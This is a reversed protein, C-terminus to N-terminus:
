EKSPSRSPTTDTDPASNGYLKRWGKGSRTQLRHFKGRARLTKVKNDCRSSIAVRRHDAPCRVIVWLPWKSSDRERAAVRRDCERRTIRCMETPAAPSNESATTTPETYSCHLRHFM